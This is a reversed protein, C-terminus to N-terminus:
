AGSGGSGGSGGGHDDSGAADDDSCGDAPFNHDAVADGADPMGDDIDDSGSGETETETEAACTGASSDSDDACVAGTADHGDECETTTAGDHFAITSGTLNGVFHVTGLDFPAGGARVAFLTPSGGAHRPMALKTKSGSVLQLALNKAAPVTIAFSGDAAVPATGVIAGQHLVRVSTVTSPFGAGVRGTITQGADSSCAGLAALSSVLLSAFISKTTMDIRKLLGLAVRLETIESSSATYASADHVACTCPSQVRTAAIM